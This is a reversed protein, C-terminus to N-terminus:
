EISMDMQHFLELKNASFFQNIQSTTISFRHPKEPFLKTKLTVSIFDLTHRIYVTFDQIHNESM